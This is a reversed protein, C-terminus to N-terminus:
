QKHNKILRKNLLFDGHANVSTAELTYDREKLMPYSEEVTSQILPSDWIPIACYTHNIHHDYKGLDKYIEIKVSIKM